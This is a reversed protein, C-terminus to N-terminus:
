YLWKISKIIVINQNIYIMFEACIILIFHANGNFNNNM